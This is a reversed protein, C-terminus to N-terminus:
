RKECSFSLFFFELSFIFLINLYGALQDPLDPNEPRVSVAVFYIYVVSCTYIYLFFFVFLTMTFSPNSIPWLTGFHM